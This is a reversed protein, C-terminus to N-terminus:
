TDCCERDSIFHDYRVEEAYCCCYDQLIRGYQLGPVQGQCTGTETIRSCATVGAAM